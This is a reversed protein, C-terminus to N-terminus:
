LDRSMACAGRRGTWARGSRDTEFVRLVEGINGAPRFEASSGFGRAWLLPGEPRGALVPWGPREWRPARASQLLDSLKRPAVGPQLRICDGPQWGRLILPKPAKSWDIEDWNPKTYREAGAGQPELELRIRTRGDPSALESPPEIQAATALEDAGTRTALRVTGCSREATLGPLDLRAGAGPQEVLARLAEVHRFEYRGEGGIKELALRLVRRRLAPALAAMAGADFALGGAAPEALRALAEEAQERWYAADEGAQEALRSLAESTRPNWERELMPLLAHRIRNRAFRLDLNTEDLRAELGREALFAEVEAREVGLLPRIVGPARVPRISSLGEPGAGRLLRFLVTEAQDSRTHGTAIRDFVGREIMAGFWDYRARRGADELNRGQRTATEGVDVREIRAELGRQHALDRVFAEDADSAAGRLGHNLHVVGLRIGLAPALEGLAALLALSDPGGSCAVGIREGSQCMRHRAIAESVRALM